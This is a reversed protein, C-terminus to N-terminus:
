CRMGQVGKLASNTDAKPKFVLWLLLVVVALAVTTGMSFQNGQWWFGIQYVIFAVVYGFGTMYVIAFMTWKWSNMERRIAGIAAVCPASLLVFILFSVSTLPTFAARMSAWIEKGNDAIQAFGYFIGFSSVVTEKALLGSVAAVVPRWEGWGLPKFIWAFSNGIAAM